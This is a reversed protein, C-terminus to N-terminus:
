SALPLNFILAASFESYNPPTAGDYARIYFRASASTRPFTMTPESSRMVLDADSGPMFCNDRRRIEFGGNAPPMGANITVARGSLSVTLGTPTPLYGSPMAVPLLMDSPVSSSTKIALDEAWDNAFTIEYNVVDPLSARYSLRVSRVIVLADLGASPADIALGDGPWIDSDLNFSSCKYTGSWLAATSSAARELTSAANRCDRSSRAPPNTVSGVWVSMAPLGSAALQQQSTLNVARGAARAVASYSVAIQEGAAPAFGPYFVVRGSSEVVCEASQTAAGVRRTTATGNPPTSVVWGSGLNTLNIGRMSGYLNISSAAVVMCRVPLSSIQGDYLSVPIGAVGNVFEQVEFQLSAPAPIQDGGVAVPGADDISRYVATAREIEPCHVRVRLAYQNAPNVAYSAGSSSGNVLPRMSVNSTGQAAAIQFGATCASQLGEGTFFGAIVGSSGSELTVGTAELLLTGGMEVPDLWALQAEGDRGTGGQMMLGGAGLTLYGSMGTKGWVRFDIQGENFLERIQTSEGPAPCFVRDSLYFQNAVGDGLFYETVHTTPEHRGCVTVDNAVNRRTTATLALNGLLLTGDAESLSHTAAPLASLALDGNLTRLAARAQDAVSKAASSFETAPDAVLGTVPAALTLATTSLANSGTKAVLAAILPGAAVGSAGQVPTMGTWDLLCEDSIALIGIRHRPGETGLGVYEPMPTAAIYGTFYLTGDDGCVEIFQGRSAPPQGAPLTFSARCVSPENLKRDITLLHAADLASTYDQGGITIKM